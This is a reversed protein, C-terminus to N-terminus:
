RRFHYQCFFIPAQFYILYFVTTAGYPFLFVFATKVDPSQKASFSYEGHGVLKINHTSIRRLLFLYWILMAISTLVYGFALSIVSFGFIIGIIVILFKLGHNLFKLFSLKIYNEELQYVAEAPTSFSRALLVSVFAISIFFTLESTSSFRILIIYLISSAVTTVVLLILNPRLWRLGNWGERGIIRLWNPGAGFCAIGGLLMATNFATMFAGYDAVSLSRALLM